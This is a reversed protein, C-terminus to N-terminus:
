EVDEVERQDLAGGYEVLKKKVTELDEGVLKDGIIFESVFFKQNSKNTAKGVTATIANEYSNKSGMKKMQSVMKGWNTFSTIPLVFIFPEFNELDLSLCYLKTRTQEKGDQIVKKDRVLARLPTFLIEEKTTQTDTFYFVGKPAPTKNDPLYVDTGAQVIVVYPLAMISVPLEEFGGIPVGSYQRSLAQAANKSREISISHDGELNSDEVVGDESLVIKSPM